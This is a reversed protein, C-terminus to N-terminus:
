AHVMTLRFTYDEEQAPAQGAQDVPLADPDPEGVQFSGSFSFFSGSLSLSVMGSFRGGTM